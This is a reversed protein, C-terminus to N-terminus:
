SGWCTRLLSLFFHVGEGVFAESNLFHLGFEVGVEIVEEFVSEVLGDFEAFGEGCGGECLVELVEESVHEVEVAEQADHLLVADCVDVDDVGM